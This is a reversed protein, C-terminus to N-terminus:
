VERPNHTLFDVTDDDLEPHDRYGEDDDEISDNTLADLQDQLRKTLVKLEELKSRLKYMECNSVEPM